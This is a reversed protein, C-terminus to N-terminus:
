GGRRFVTVSEVTIIALRSTGASNGDPCASHLVDLDHIIPAWVV